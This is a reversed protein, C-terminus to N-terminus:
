WQIDRARLFHGQFELTVSQYVDDDRRKFRLDIQNPHLLPLLGWYWPRDLVISLYALYPSDVPWACGSEHIAPDGLRDSAIGATVIVPIHLDRALGYLRFAPHRRTGRQTTSIDDADDIVILDLGDNFWVDRAMNCISEVDQPSGYVLLNAAATDTQAQALRQRDREALHGSLAVIYIVGAQACLLRTVAEIRSQRLSILLCRRGQDFAASRCIDAAVSSRGVGPKSCITVLQGPIFGGLATDLDRYGSQILVPNEARDSRLQAHALAEAVGDAWAVPGMGLDNPPGENGRSSEAEGAPIQKM